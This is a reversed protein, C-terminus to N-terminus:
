VATDPRSWYKDPAFRPGHKAALTTLTDRVVDFGLRRAYHFPGGLFPPFGLGFVAGLDGDDANAIIGESLCRAAENLFVFTCREAIDRRDFNLRESGNRFHKYITEDVGQKKNDEYVYFGLSNKRGKRGEAEITEVEAPVKLRDAFPEKLVRIIHSGVDIGVEDLLTIPGVPMGFAELSKDIDEVTAGESLLCLAENIFFALIRTTYFGPGDNVVIINKGMKGALDFAASVAGPDTIPTRIIEVLPMKPVPSFFHMGVVRSPKTSAAAISSIPISSTNSAFVFDAPCAEECSKLIQKKLDLDEFVAEIVIRANTLSRLDTAPCVTAVAATRQAAPMRRKRVKEDYFAAIAGLGKSVGAPDRDELVTRIGKGSLVTAIGSGMLGAGIIGVPAAGSLLPAMYDIRAKDQHEPDIPNKKAATMMRFVHILSRSEESAVLEGFLKAENALGDEFARTVGWMVAELAKLPAPYHGKTTKNVEEFSKRKIIARGFPNGELAFKNVDLTGKNGRDDLLSLSSKRAIPKSQRCIAIASELLLNRPVSDSILGIKKAKKSDIQRGTLILGLAETIGILRPLRQTGGGGPLLGLQVEPLGMRTSEHTSAIRYHCALALELGGGLCVGDIAAVTPVAASELRGFLRQLTRAAEAGAAASDLTDFISIDVGAAFSGLKGSRFVLGAIAPENLVADLLTGFDELIPRSFANVSKGPDDFTIIAIHDATWEVSLTGTHSEFTKQITILNSNM